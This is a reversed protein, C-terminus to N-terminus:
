NEFGIRHIVGSVYLLEKTMTKIELFDGAIKIPLPKASLHITKDTYEIVGIYNEITLERTGILTIKVVDLTLEKSVEFSDAIRERMTITQKKDERGKRKRGSAM